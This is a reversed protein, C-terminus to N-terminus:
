PPQANDQTTDDDSQHKKADQGILLHYSLDGVLRAHFRGHKMGYWWAARSGLSLLKHHLFAELTYPRRVCINGFLFTDIMMNIVQVTIAHVASTKWDRPPPLNRKEVLIIM